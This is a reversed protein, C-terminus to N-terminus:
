DCDRGPWGSNSLLEFLRRSGKDHSHYHLALSVKRHSIGKKRMARGSSVASWEELGDTGKRGARSYGKRKISAGPPQDLGKFYRNGTGANQLMHLYLLGTVDHENLDCGRDILLGKCHVMKGHEASNIDTDQGKTDRFTAGRAMGGVNKQLEEAFRVM